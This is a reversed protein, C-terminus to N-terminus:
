ELYWAIAIWGVDERFTDRTLDQIAMEVLEAQLAGVASGCCRWVRLKLRCPVLLLLQKLIAYGM